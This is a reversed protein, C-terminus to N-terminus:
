FDRRLVFEALDDLLGRQDKTCGELTELVQKAKEIEKEAKNLSYDLSGTDKILQRLGELQSSELESGLSERLFDKGKKNARRYARLVLLTKKGERLDNGVPKGTKTTDGFVGLVDDRIQFALGVHRAYRRLLNKLESRAEALSLGILFPLEFSYRASVLDLGKLFRQEQDKEIDEFNLDYQIKWGATTRALVEEMLAMIKSVKKSGIRSELLCQNAMTRVHDGAIMAIVRGYHNNKRDFKKEFQKAFVRELTLGGYRLFDRDAVDDHILLFQHMLEVYLSVNMALITENGGGIEYGLRVLFARVRKGGRMVQNRITKSLLALSEDVQEYEQIKRDFFHNLGQNTKKAEGLLFDLFSKKM